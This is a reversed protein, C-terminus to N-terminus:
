GVSHGRDFLRAIDHISEGQQWRDWTTSRQGESYSIKPRQKM